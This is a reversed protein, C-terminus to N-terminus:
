AAARGSGAEAPASDVVRSAGSMAATAALVQEPRVPIETAWWGIADAIAATIAPTVAGIGIEGIGRPGYPDGEDLDEIAFVRSEAPADGIGPVMYTDLNATVLRGAQMQADETLTFGIGQCAGGEVQGLYGAVDIIPGAAIHHDLGQVRVEGTVRDVAVRAVTAGFAFLYRANAKDYDVNPFDFRATATPLVGGLMRALSAFTVVPGGERQGAPGVGGPVVDLSGTPRELLREAARSLQARLEPGAMQAAKWVVYTGRSASTSGSDPTAGTDGFVALVDERACGLVQAVASQVAAVLGQGFEDLGFAAEIKGDPLLALRGGGHDPVVSGLGVGQLVLAIGTGFAYDADLRHSAAGRASTVCAAELVEHLRETPSVPTGYHGPSGPKRLNRRRMEFPDLGAMAALRGVQSEIAFASQNTGFGRFAGCLGNNTYVLRGRTRVNPIEYAGCVSELATALVAPSLSAYAGCDAVIDVDLMVLRGQADCGTRMRIRMPNRKWGSANSEDRDLKLRVPRGTKMALLAIVPQVTLEDKGGFAGGAPSTVVRIREQPIALIRSLQIRDRAGHQGGAVVTLLGGAEPIALGGETEMFTHIQRSTVYEDEVIHVCISEAADVDGRQFRAEDQLNGADHVRPSGADLAALPDDVVPLLEYRVDIL